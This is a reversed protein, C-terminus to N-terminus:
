ASAAAPRHEPCDTQLDTLALPAKLLHCHHPAAPDAHEDRGFFRCTTCMRAVSVVGRRQLDGIVHLLTHLAAARDAVPLAALAALLPGDWPALEGAVTEGAETLSLVRRRGDLGPSRSVLGKRELATVADSMTPTTVDFEAALASVERRAGSQRSLALVAQQQLPTLGHGRASRQALSRMGHGLRELADALRRDLDATGGPDTVHETM